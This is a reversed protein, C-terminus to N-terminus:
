RMHQRSYRLVTNGDATDEAAQQLHPMVKSQRAAPPRACRVTLHVAAHQRDGARLASSVNGAACLALVSRVLRRFCAAVAQSSSYRCAAALEGTTASDAHACLQM